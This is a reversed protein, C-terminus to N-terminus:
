QHTSHCLWTCKHGENGILVRTTNTVVSYSPADPFTCRPNVTDEKVVIQRVGEGKMQKLVRCFERAAFRIANRSHKTTDRSGQVGSDTFSASANEFDSRAGWGFVCSRFGNSNLRHCRSSRHPNGINSLPRPAKSQLTSLAWLM